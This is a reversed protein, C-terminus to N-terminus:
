RHPPRIARRRAAFSFSNDALVRAVVVRREFADAARETVRPAGIGGSVRRAFQAHARRDRGIRQEFALALADHEDCARSRAVLEADAILVPRFQERELDLQRVHEIGGHDFRILADVRSPSTSRREILAVSCLSRAAARASPKSAQAM